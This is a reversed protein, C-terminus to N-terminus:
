RYSVLTDVAHRHHPFGEEDAIGIAVLAPIRVHAPLGLAAKVKEPDFGLMPSTAYGYSSAALLLYGLAIYGQSAGWQERDDDSKSAWNKRFGAVSSARKETPVGPHMVDELGELVAAMDTYLVIVAPASAIQQQGNAAASLEAKLAPDTVVVFRWPQVNFASPALRVSEFILDLDDRDIPEQRFRRISRRAAAAEPVTLVATETTSM